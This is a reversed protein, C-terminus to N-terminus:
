GALASRLYRLIVRTVSRLVDPLDNTIREFTERNLFLLTGETKAIASAARPANDLLALEGFFNNEKLDSLLKGQRILQVNGSAIIYLGTPPDNEAFIIQEPSMSVAEAEDAIILLTEAPLHNFLEVQRLTFVKQMKNMDIGVESSFSVNVVEHLWADFYEAFPKIVAHEKTLKGNSFIALFVNALDHNAILAGMLEIAKAREQKDGQLIAPILGFVEAVPHYAGVWYIFREEALFIRADLENQIEIQQYYRKAMRLAYILEAEVFCLRLVNQKFADSMAFHRARNFTEFAVIQKLLVNDQGALEVLCKEVQDDMMQALTAVLIDTRVGQQNENQRIEGMLLPIAAAGLENIFKRAAYYIGGKSLRKVVQPAFEFNKQALLAEAAYLSVIDDPDSLIDPIAKKTVALPIKILIRAACRRILVNDQQLLSNWKALAAAAEEVGGATLLIRIAGVNVEPAPDRLWMRAEAVFKESNFEALANLIWWKIEADQETKLLTLLMPVASKEQLNTIAKIAETRLEKETSFVHQLIVKPFKMTKVTSLLAYGFNIVRSDHSNLSQTINEEIIERYADVDGEEVNFRKLFIEEKLTTVYNAQLRRTFVVLFLCVILIVLALSSINLHAALVILMLSAVGIGISESATQILMQSLSRIENPLVNILLTRGINIYNYFMYDGAGMVAIVRLTPFFMVLVPMIIWYLPLVKLLTAIGARILMKSFFWTILTSIFYTVATFISIFQGIQQGDYITALKMRMVYDVLTYAFALLFSFLFLNVFLPYRYPLTGHKPEHVIVSLPTLILIFVCSLLLFASIVYPLFSIGFEKILFADIVGFVIKGSVAAIQLVPSLQKMEILDFANRTNNWTITASILAAVTLVLSVIIPMFYWHMVLLMAFLMVVFATVMLFVIATLKVKKNLVRSIMVTAIIEIITRAIFFYPIWKVPYSSLFLATIYIFVNASVTGNVTHLAIAANQKSFLNLKM